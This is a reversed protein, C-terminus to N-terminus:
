AYIKGNVGTKYDKYVVVPNKFKGAIDEIYRADFCHYKSKLTKINDDESLTTYIDSEKLDHWGKLILFSQNYLFKYYKSRKRYPTFTMKVCDSYQAYTCLKFNHFTIKQAVPFGFENLYVITYKENEKLGANYISKQLPELYKQIITNFIKIAEAENNTTKSEIEDGNEYMAMVEFAAPEIECADIIIKRRMTYNGGIEEHKIRNM